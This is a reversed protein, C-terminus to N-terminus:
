SGAADLVGFDTVVVAPRGQRDLGVYSAYAGDGFGSSFAVVNAGSGLDVEVTFSGPFVGGGPNMGALLAQSYTEYTAPDKLRATAEPSTFSGTGADVSYGFFEGPGLVSPDQGEVLALEWRVPEESAVRVMAAAVRRDGGAFDVRLVSVPHRGPPVTTTFPLSDVIFADSAVLRGTPLVVEGADEVTMSVNQGFSLGAGPAGFAAYLDAPAISPPAPSADPPVSAPRISPIPRPQDPIVLMAGTAAVVLAAVVSLLSARRDVPRLRRREPPGVSDQCTRQVRGLM